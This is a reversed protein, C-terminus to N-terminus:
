DRMGILGALILLISGIPIPIGILINDTYSIALWGLSVIGALILLIAGIRESGLIVIIGLIALALSALYLYFVTNVTWYAETIWDQSILEFKTEIASGYLLKYFLGQCSLEMAGNSIYDIYGPLIVGLLGLIFGGTRGM